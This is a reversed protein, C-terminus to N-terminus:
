NPPRGETALLSHPSKLSWWSMLREDSLSLVHDVQELQKEVIADSAILIGPEAVLWSHTKFCPARLDRM